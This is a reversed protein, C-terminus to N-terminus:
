NTKTKLLRLYREASKATPSDKAEALIKNYTETAKANDNLTEFCLAQYLHVEPYVTQASKIALAQNWTEVAQKCNKLNAQAHGKEILVLASLLDSGVNLQSAVKSIEEDKHTKTEISAYDLFALLAARSKPFDKVVGAFKQALVENDVVVPPKANKDKADPTPPKEAQDKSKTYEQDVKYFAEQAKTEAQDSFYQAISYGAGALLFLVVAGAIITSHQRSWQFGKKLEATVADPNKLDKKSYHHTSM